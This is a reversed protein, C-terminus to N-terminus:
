QQTVTVETLDQTHSFHICNRDRINYSDHLPATMTLLNQKENARAANVIRLIKWEDTNVSLKDKPIKRMLRSTKKTIEFSVSEQNLTLNIKWPFSGNKEFTAFTKKFDNDLAAKSGNKVASPVTNLIEETTTKNTVSMNSIATQIASKDEAINAADGSTVVPISKVATCRETNDGCLLTPTASLIGQKSANAKSISFDTDTLAVTVKSESPLAKRATKIDTKPSVHQKNIYHPIPSQTATPETKTKANEKASLKSIQAKVTFILTKGDMGLTLEAEMSGTTTETAPTLKYKDNAVSSGTYTNTTYICEDLLM